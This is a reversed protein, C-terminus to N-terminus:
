AYGLEEKLRKIELRTAEEEQPDVMMRKNQNELKEKESKEKQEKFWDPIVEGRKGNTFYHNQRQKRKRFEVDDARVADLSRIGKKEWTKLITKVYGWSAKNREMARKMAEMVLAEGEEKEAEQKMVM